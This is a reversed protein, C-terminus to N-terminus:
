EGTDDGLGSSESEEIDAAGGHRYLALMLALALATAAVAVVIGTLVMAQAVPDPLPRDRGAVTVLFLFVSTGLLNLALIRRLPHRATLAGYVALGILATAALLFVPGAASM